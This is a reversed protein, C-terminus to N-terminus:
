EFREPVAHRPHIPPCWYRLCLTPPIKSLDLHEVFTPARAVSHQQGLVMAASLVSRLLPRELFEPVRPEGVVAVFERCRKAVEQSPLGREKMGLGELVKWGM